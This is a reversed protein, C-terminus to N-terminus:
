ATGLTNSLTDLLTDRDFKAIHTTFGAARGRELDAPSAHSSLGVIPVNQWSSQRVKEAFQFGNMDPMEIDSVIVDFEHGAECLELAKAPSEAATVDYGAVNLLPVLMNRFFPSDDVLLVKRKTDMQEFGAADLGAKEKFWGKNTKKMYFAVDIVDTAKGNIIASGISGSDEGSIQIDVLEDKIDIIDDVIIGMSNREDAFVLVPKEEDTDMAVSTDFPTLPMLTGRYQVVMQGNANEIQSPRVSEIRLILSLPVARPGSSKTRFLLLATKEPGAELAKAEESVEIDNKSEVDGSAKAVGVPDLIMIVSGDGLITNGSFITLRKLMTSVSKIVIEETDHVVDVIIGFNYKGVQAVVIYKNKSSQQFREIESIKDDGEKKQGKKQDMKLLKDLFVLPLLQNRLRYVPTNNILEIKNENDDPSIMVLERVALQPIAFREGASEVILASVIALTLPIKITFRSGKGEESKLEVSGGIKEINHRVVDMGVGRGSVSTVKEATSFGAKFIFQQIQQMSMQELDEASALGNQIVKAKIKETSLGKGDDTIEIVIHGSDHYANLIIKGTEPKGAAIRDEATEIGHDASNRVMHTLPDKIMDLVQRDLETDQGRMELEIKKGLEMSIDRVIRPLKTWANGVPQMRAKMVGEQLDSVVHNLRQLPTAFESDAQTRAIQLLQNRTLVLESVMTMLDELVEVSVRLTQAALNSEKAEMNPKPAAPTETKKPPAPPPAPAAEVAEQPQAAPEPVHTQGAPVPVFGHEDPEAAPISVGNGAQPADELDAAIVIDDEAPINAAPAEGNAVATIAELKVILDDDEGDPEQGTSEIESVIWKIRDLCEFITTVYDTTVELKGARFDDLVNEARHAVTELRPLGLFGCTGKITHMVRFIKGLLDKDNPSQEFQVLDSDLEGLNENTETLFEAILDDM